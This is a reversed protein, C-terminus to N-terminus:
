GSIKDGLSFCYKRAGTADSEFTSTTYREPLRWSISVFASCDNGYSTSGGSTNVASSFFEAWNQQGGYRYPEGRYPAGRDYIVDYSSTTYNTISNKPTWIFDIMEGAFRRITESSVADFSAEGTWAYVSSALLVLFLEMIIFLFRIKKM